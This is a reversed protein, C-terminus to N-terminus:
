LGQFLGGGHGIQSQALASPPRCTSLIHLDHRFSPLASNANTFSAAEALCNDWEDDDDLLNHLKCAAQFTEAEQGAVTRLNRYSTAGHMHLLLLYLHFCETDRPSVYYMGGIVNGGGCKRPTWMRTAKQYVYHNPIQTCVCQHAAQDHSSLDFWAM